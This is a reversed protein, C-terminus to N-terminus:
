NSIKRRKGGARICEMKVSKCSFRTFSKLNTCSQHFMRDCGCCIWAISSKSSRLQPKQPLEHRDCVGCVTQSAGGYIGVASPVELDIQKRVKVAATGGNTTAKLRKNEQIASNYKSKYVYLSHCIHAFEAGQNTLKVSLAEIDDHHKERLTRVQAELGRNGSRLADLEKDKVELEKVAKLHEQESADLAEQTRQLQTELSNARLIDNTDQLLEVKSTLEENERELRQIRESNHLQRGKWDDLDMKLKEGEKILKCKEQQLDKIEAIREELSAEKDKLLKKQTRCKEIKDSLTKKFDSILKQYKDCSDLCVNREHELEECRLKSEHLLQELEKLRETTRRNKELDKVLVKNELLLEEVKSRLNAEVTEHRLCLSKKEEVLEDAQSKHQGLQKELCELENELKKAEKAQASIEENKKRIRLTLEEITEEAQQAEKLVDPRVREIELIKGLLEKIRSDRLKFSERGIRTREVAEISEAEEEAVTSEM